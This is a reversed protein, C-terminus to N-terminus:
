FAVQRGTRIDLRRKGRELLEAHLECDVIEAGARRDSTIDDTHRGGVAFSHRNKCSSITLAVSTQKERWALV